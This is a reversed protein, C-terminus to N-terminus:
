CGKVIAADVKGAGLEAATNLAKVLLNNVLLPYSMSVREGKRPGDKVVAFLRGRVADYVDPAFIADSTANARSLKHAVYAELENDLPLLQVIELRRAVERAEGTAHEGLKTMLETQGFLVISILRKWGTKFEHFRKLQKLAHLSLDHAEEFIVVNHMGAEASEALLEHAQRTLSELRARLKAEPAVDRIIAELIGTGSLKEKEPLMPQILRVPLGERRVRDKFDDLLTTKGGGSEAVLAFLRANRVAEWISEAAFQQDPGRFVDEACEPDTNFPDRFLKFHRRAAPTLMVPELHFEPEAEETTSPRSSNIRPPEIGAARMRAAFITPIITPGAEAADGDLEFLDEDDAEPVHRSRLFNRVQEELHSRPTLSPWQNRGLLLSTLAVSVPTGDAKKIHASFHSQTIGASALVSRLKIPMFPIETRLVHNRTNYLRAPPGSVKLALNM